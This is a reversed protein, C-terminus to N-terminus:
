VGLKANLKAVTPLTDVPWGGRITFDEDKEPEYKSTVNILAIAQSEEPRVPHLLPFADVGHRHEHVVIWLKPKM